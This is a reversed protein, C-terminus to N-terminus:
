VAVKCTLDGIKVIYVGHAPLILQSRGAPITENNVLRGLITFIKIQTPHNSSVIILGQAAKIEIDTEKVVTKLDSRESKVPEWAKPAASAVVPALSSLLLMGFTLYKAPMMRM